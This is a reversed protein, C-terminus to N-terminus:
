VTDRGYVAYRNKGGKKAVYLAEDAKKYVEKYEEGADAFVIGASVSVGYKDHYDGLCEIIKDQVVQVKHEAMNEAVATTMFVSFEDGGIRGIIDGARFMGRLCSAFIQLVKDGEPHGLTDNITKFNDLDFAILVGGNESEELYKKVQSEFGGRNLAHTLDDVGLKKESKKLESELKYRRTIEETQDIIVGVLEKEVRCLQIELYKGRFHVVENEDKTEDMEKIIELLESVNENYYEWEIDDMSLMSKMKDSFFYYNMGFVCEFVAIDDGLVELMKDTRESKHIYGMKLKEIVRILKNIDKNNGERLAVNFNGELISNIKNEMEDFHQLIYKKFNYYITWVIIIITVVFFVLTRIWQELCKIVTDSMPSFAMVYADEQEKVVVICYEGNIRTFDHAKQAAKALYIVREKNSTKGHIDLVQENNKTMGLVAGSDKGIEVISTDYETAAERLTNEIITRESKLGMQNVDAEICIASYEEAEAKIMLRCYSPNKWFGSDEIHVYYHTENDALLNKLRDKEDQLKTGVADVDTSHCIRQNNDYVYIDKAGLIVALRDLESQEKMEFLNSILYEANEAREMWVNEMMQLKAEYNRKSLDTNEMVQGVIETLYEGEDRFDSTIMGYSLFTFLMVTLLVFVTILNRYIKSM